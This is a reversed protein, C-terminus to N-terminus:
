NYNYEKKTGDEIFFEWKGRKRNEVFKGIM